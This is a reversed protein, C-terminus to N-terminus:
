LEREIQFPSKSHAVGGSVGTFDEAGYGGIVLGGREFDHTCDILEAVLQQALSEQVDDVVEILISLLQAANPIADLRRRYAAGSSLDPLSEAM